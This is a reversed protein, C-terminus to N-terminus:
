GGRLVRIRESIPPHTMWLRAFLSIKQDGYDDDLNYPSGFWLHATAHNARPMDSKDHSIKELARALGEPYRTILAGTSDALFERKRSIALQILMAIIPSLIALIIGILLFVAASKGHDDDDSRGWWMSRLFWDSLLSIFGVLVVVMTLLLMDKNGIHALEHALVGEIETKELKQLLGTTVAIVAHKENRGTAFANPQSSEIVYLRPMPLNAAICLNELLRYLEPATKFDVEQARYLALAIKDSAYYSVVNMVVSMGVALPLLEPVQLYYAFFWGLGIVIVFFASVLVWTKRINQDQHTYLSVM